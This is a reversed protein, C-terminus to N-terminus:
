LSLSDIIGQYNDDNQLQSYDQQSGMQLPINLYKLVTDASESHYFCACAGREKGGVVKNTNRAYLVHTRSMSLTDPVM